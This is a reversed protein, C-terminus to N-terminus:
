VTVQLASELHSCMEKFNELELKPQFLKKIGNRSGDYVDLFKEASKLQYLVNGLCKACWTSDRQQPPEWNNSPYNRHYWGTVYSWEKGRWQGM